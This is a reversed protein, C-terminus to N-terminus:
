TAYALAALLLAVIIIVAISNLAPMVGGGDTWDPRKSAVFKNYLGEFVLLLLVVGASILLIEWTPM